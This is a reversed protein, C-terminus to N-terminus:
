AAEAADTPQSKTIDVTLTGDEDYYYPKDMEDSMNM